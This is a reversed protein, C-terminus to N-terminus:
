CGRYVHQLRALDGARPVLADRRLRDACRLVRRHAFHLPIPRPRLGGNQPSLRRQAVSQEAQSRQPRARRLPLVATGAHPRTSRTLGRGHPWGPRRLDPAWRPSGPSRHVKLCQYVVFQKHVPELIGAKCAAALDTPMYDFILYIDQDNSAKLVNQLRIINEHGTLGQLYMVERFTRQADTADQFAGFIKKIAVTSGSKKDVAKYVVAYAGKGLKKKVDYKRLVSKDVAEEAAASM